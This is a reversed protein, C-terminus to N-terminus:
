PKPPATPKSSTPTSLKYGQAVIFIERSVDRSSQPKFAQANRFLKKCDALLQPFPEGELVKMVSSGNPALVFPSLELVRRCLRESHYEDGHGTTNPAMDSLVTDFRRPTAPTSSAAPAERPALHALLSEPPTLFADGTYAIVNPPFSATITQLDIGVVIGRPGVLESAVQLWSGPACGLDLVASGHRLVRFKEQVEKLKYASRALYGEAKAQKFFRDHLQRRHAPM